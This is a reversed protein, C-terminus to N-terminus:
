YLATQRQAALQEPPRNKGVWVPLARRGPHGLAGHCVDALSCPLVLIQYAAFAACLGVLYVLPSHIAKDPFVLKGLGVPVLLMLAFFLITQLAFM